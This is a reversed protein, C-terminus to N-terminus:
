PDPAELDTWASDPIILQLRDGAVPTGALERAHGNWIFEQPWGDVKLTLELGTGKPLSETVTAEPGAGDPPGLRVQGDDLLLPGQGGPGPDASFVNRYGLFRAVWANRPAEFVARAPGSQVVRGEHLIAIVDALRFAEAQDHTVHIASLGPSELLEALEATLEERLNADLNSLPEDLLLMAPAPALARALAVRQQQGGSLQQVKRGSLGPLGVLALLESVRSATRERSYRREVLGFAVNAAVDLHPFLAFDQFVVGFNRKQAPVSELNRGKFSITGSDPRELGAVLKLITSKGSGSPGLLGLVQDERLELTVDDVAVTDGYQRTLNNLELAM